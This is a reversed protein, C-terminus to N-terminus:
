KKIKCQCFSLIETRQQRTLFDFRLGVGPIENTMGWGRKWCVTSAIPSQNSLALLSIWLTSKLAIEDNVCFLFCGGPSFDISVTREADEMNSTSSLLANLNLPIRNRVLVIKSPQECCYRLHEEPPLSGDQGVWSALM